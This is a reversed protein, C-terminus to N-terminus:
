AGGGALLSGCQSVLDRILFWAAVGGRMPSMERVLARAFSRDSHTALLQNIISEALGANRESFRSLSWAFFQLGSEHRMQYATHASSVAALVDQAATDWTPDRSYAESLARLVLLAPHDPYSELYRTTQGRLEAADNPSRMNGFIDKALQTGGDPDAIVKELEESYQSAELYRLMRERVDEDTATARCALLMESLARRRGREIVDYIFRLLLAAVEFAFDAMPLALHQSAKDIEVARRSQLYNAVYEGYAQLTEEKSAGAVVVGFEDKAYDVTYDAVVGVTLLRHLAKEIQQQELGPVSIQETHRSTLDGLHGLVAAIDRKEREIGRFARCHFFLARTVDDNDEWRTADLVRSIEETDTNPDLLRRTRKEDDNSVIVCCYATRRDRGARGAEQYFSEISPPAGFHVTFRVNPKDIGMGFAKTCVMTTFRNDKFGRAVQPRRADHEDRGFGKPAQGCYFPVKVGFARAVEDAVQVVGFDGNVHPCFVLGCYSDNGRTQMLANRDIGFHAPLAQGLYGKLRAGKESSPAHCVIFRLEPRDFTTPTIIAEFDRIRLERQIDKLVARSATGTLGLLPPALGDKECYQRAARGIRLYATRFDHGWESVCHAEDVVALSIPSHVTLSRIAERFDVTQFREPAVYTFLYEGQGFLALARDRDARNTLRSTISAARDIGLRRLNDIQDDMLALIPDIVLTRGPLLFSALQYVLSKGGGTPLLLLADKGELLRQLAELQGEWFSEKRFVYKLFYRLEGESPAALRSDRPRVPICASALFCPVHTQRVFYTRSGLASQDTFSIRLAHDSPPATMDRSLVCNPEGLAADTEYLDGVRRTLECFDQVAARVVLATQGPDLIGLDALDTEVTWTGADRPDLDGSRLAQLLVMQIQHAARVAGALSAAAQEPPSLAGSTMDPLDALLQRVTELAPGRRDRVEDAPVRIVTHGHLRLAEDREGDAEVHAAHQAGDIEIVLGQDLHPHHVVFDCRGYLGDAAGPPLLGSLDVQPIISFGVKDAIIEPLVEDLFAAEERSDLCGVVSMPRPPAFALSALMAPTYVPEPESVVIERLAQELDPSVLTIRGRTLIKEVISLVQALPASLPEAERLPWDLRWQAYAQLHRANLNGSSAFHVLGEPASASEIFRVQYSDLWPRASMTRPFVGDPVDRVSASAHKAAGGTAGSAEDLSVIGRCRPYRSCGYFQGGANPGRRATRLVMASGCKPCVVQGM